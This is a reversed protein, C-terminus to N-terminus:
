RGLEFCLASDLTPHAFTFGEALLRVPSVRQGGLITAQAMEGFIARLAAAPVPIVTPRKLRRGLAHVFADNTVPEPATLNYAGRASRHMLLHHLAGVQDELSIWSMWQDGSGLRGGLGARFAPLMKALAGGAASLVVGTRVLALRVGAALSAQAEREWVECVDALYGTGKGTIEDVVMSGTDGYYGVASSSILVEPPTPMRKMAKVLTRTGRQRSELIERKHPATWRDGVSAGALHVVADVGHLSAPDLMGANPDWGIDGRSADPRRTIWRVSHGGTRLFWTLASGILGTGGTIAVTRRPQDAFAAHRLLDLRTRAHRFDFLQELQQRVYWGGGLAGLAGLPLQYDIQDLLVSTGDSAPEMVHTHEWRTFPGEVQADVFRSGSVYGRHEMLMRQRLLGALVPVSVEVRSGDTIGGTRSIVRTQQWGPTLREFAGSREHWDFLARASVPMTSRRVFTSM